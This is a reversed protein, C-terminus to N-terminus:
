SDNENQTIFHDVLWISDFGAQEAQQAMSRLDSWRPTVGGMRGERTYLMFGVKLPRGGTADSM